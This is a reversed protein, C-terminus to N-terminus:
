GHDRAAKEALNTTLELAAEATQARELLKNNEVQMAALNQRHEASMMQAAIVSAGAAQEIGAIKDDAWRRNWLDVAESPRPARPGKAGCACIIRVVDQRFDAEMELAHDNSDALVAFPCPRSRTLHSSVDDFSPM